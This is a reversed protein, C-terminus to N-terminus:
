IAAHTEACGESPRQSFRVPDAKALDDLISIGRTPPKTPSPPEKAAPRNCQFILVGLAVVTGFFVVLFMPPLNQFPLWCPSVYLGPLYAECSGLENRPVWKSPCVVPACAPASPAFAGSGLEIDM